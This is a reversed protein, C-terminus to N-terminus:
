AREVLWRDKEVLWAKVGPHQRDVILVDPNGGADWCDKIAKRLLGETFSRTELRITGFDSVYRDALGLYEAVPKGNIIQLDTGVRIPFVAASVKMLSPAAVIAPAAFLFFRRKM